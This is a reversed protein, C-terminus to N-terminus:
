EGVRHVRRVRRVADWGGAVGPLCTQEAETRQADGCGLQVRRRRGQREEFGGERGEAGLVARRRQGPVM